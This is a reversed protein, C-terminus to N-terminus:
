QIDTITYSHVQTQFLSPKISESQNIAGATGM